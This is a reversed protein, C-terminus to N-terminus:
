PHRHASLVEDWREPAIHGTCVELFYEFPSTAIESDKHATATKGLTETWFDKLPDILIRISTKQKAGPSGPQFNDAAIEALLLLYELQLAIQNFGPTSYIPEGTNPDAFSLPNRERLEQSNMILFEAYGLHARLKATNDSDKELNSLLRKLKTAASQIPQLQRRLESSSIDISLYNEEIQYLREAYLLALMLQKKENGDSVSFEKAIQDFIDQNFVSGEFDPAASPSIFDGLWTPNDRPADSDM